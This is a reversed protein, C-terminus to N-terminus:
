ASNIICKKTGENEKMNQLYITNDILFVTACLRTTPGYKPMFNVRPTM